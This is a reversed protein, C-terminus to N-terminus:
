PRAVRLVPGPGLEPGLKADALGRDSSEPPAFARLCPVGLSRPPLLHLLEHVVLRAPVPPLLLDCALLSLAPAGEPLLDLRRGWVCDCCVTTVEAM